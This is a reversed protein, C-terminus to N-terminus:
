LLKLYLPLELIPTLAANRAFYWVRNINEPIIKSVELFQIRQEDQVNNNLSLSM